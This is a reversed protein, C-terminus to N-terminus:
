SGTKVSNIQGWFHLNNHTRIYPNKLLWKQTSGSIEVEKNGGSTYLLENLSNTVNEQLYIIIDRHWDCFQDKLYEMRCNDKIYFKLSKFVL